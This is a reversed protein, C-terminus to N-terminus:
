FGKWGTQSSLSNLVNLVHEILKTFRDSFGAIRAGITTIILQKQLELGKKVVGQIAKVATGM